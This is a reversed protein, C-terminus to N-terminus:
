APTRRRGPRWFSELLASLAAGDRVATPRWSGPLLRHYGDSGYRQDILLVVGRDEDTRIVRGAAQLVRNIGPYMYAYEFGQEIREDFYTRILERELCVGPLGVGVIGAGSLRDGVLDIGEGFIGGMVAFGVLTRPNDADFRALFAEREREGMGSEQVVVEIEPAHTRFEELVMRLYAYSPFFLLYNGGQPRVFALALRAIEARTRDRHRYYTSVRDAIFVGLNDPPFPSPLVLTEASDGALLTKFYDFPALTASFFVATRGRALADALQQSPDICFLRACLEKGAAEYCAAYSRDFRESVRLFAGAEFYRELLAERFPAPTNRELWAEAASLFEQVLPYLEEPAERDAVPAGAEACRKHAALMWRDVRGLTRYVAPLAGKVARRLELLPRRRLEASFMERARDVLNHAEDVLFAYDGPEDGFFRRLYATPDFAYNYDCVILDAWTSLDLELEFPCVAHLRAVGAVAERTWADLEFAARRAGPLRDYHGRAVECEEPTCACGPCACIKEKAALSLSKLKLGQARLEDLAKEAALRGTNRATLYFVKESVQAAISRVAPLLVAMTKGIGTAAQLFSRGGSHLTREVADLMERQGPRFAAYPFELRRIAEDRQRHWGVICRAWELYRGVLDDFFAQLEGLTFTRRVERMRGTDLRAYTLQVGIEDLGHASAYIFAYAKAQGWHLGNEEAIAEAPDRRTTKIEEVVPVIGAIVGDIRGGIVLTLEPTDVERGVAVEPLYSEPRSYQIRQHLRMADVARSSGAFEHKLDGRRLVFEVLDRVGIHLEPKM